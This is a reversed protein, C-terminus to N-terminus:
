SISKTRATTPLGDAAKKSASLKIPPKNSGNSPILQEIKIEGLTAANKSKIRTTKTINRAGYKKVSLTTPKRLKQKDKKKTVKM